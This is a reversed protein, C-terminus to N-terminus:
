RDLIPYEVASAGPGDLWAEFASLSPRLPDALGPTGPRPSSAPAQGLSRAEPTKLGCIKVSVSM